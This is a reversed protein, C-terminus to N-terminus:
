ISLEPVAPLPPVASPKAFLYGQIFTVGNSLLWQWEGTREVGEAISEIQLDNALNLINQVIIEKYHDKDVDRVLEMDIKIFDPKIQHLLNLSGYGAGLDDLAIRFKKDRYFNVIKMLHEIDQVQDTEVVEFVINKPLMSTNKIAELTTKLCHQPDYITTPNFNIFLNNSIGHKAADRVATQRCSRDLQFLLDASRATNFLDPPYIIAGDEAKGRILCEYAFVQKPNNAAVIPQFWAELREDRLLEIFWQNDVISLFEGLTQISNLHRLSFYEGEPIFVCKTDALEMANLNEQFENCLRNSFDNTIPIALINPEIKEITVSQRRLIDEITNMTPAMPPSLFITGNIHVKEPLLECRDCRTM